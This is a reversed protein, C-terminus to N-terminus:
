QHGVSPAVVRGVILGLKRRDTRVALTHSIDAPSRITLPDNAVITAPNTEEGIVHIVEL